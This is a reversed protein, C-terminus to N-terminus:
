EDEDSASSSSGEDNEPGSSEGTRITLRVKYGVTVKSGPPTDCVVTGVPVNLASDEKINEDWTIGLSDLM